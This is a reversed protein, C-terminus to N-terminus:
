HESPSQRRRRRLALAVLGLGLLAPNGPEPVSGGSAAVTAIAGVYGVRMNWLGPDRTVSSAVVLTYIGGGALNAFNFSFPSADLGILSDGLFLSVATLDIDLRNFIPDVEVMGGFSDATAGLSFTYCDQYTGAASFSNGFTELGPPGLTVWDTTSSCVPAASASNWALTLGITAAITTWNM